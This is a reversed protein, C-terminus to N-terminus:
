VYNIFLYAVSQVPKVRLILQRFEDKRQADVNAFTGVPTGGIFFTSRLNTGVNFAADLEEDIYNVVKNGYYGGHMIDGHQFDGHQVDSFGSGALDGPTQTNYGGMGDPFRNEFVYVNFSASQLQLELYRFNQRAPITGPHNIKRIIAAKRDALPVLENTILGLRREWDTADDTTFNDNDPLTSDLISLADAYALAESKSLGRLLREYDGGFPTKFARGTPNLQRALKLITDQLTM